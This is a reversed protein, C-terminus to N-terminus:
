YFPGSGNGGEQMGVEIKHTDMKKGWTMLWILGAGVISYVITM